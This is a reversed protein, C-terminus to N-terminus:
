NSSNSGLEVAKVGPGSPYEGALHETGPYSFPCSSHPPSGHPQSLQGKQPLLWPEELMLTPGGSCTGPIPTSKRQRLERSETSPIRPCVHAPRGHWFASPIPIGSTLTTRCVLPKCVPKQPKEPNQPKPVAVSIHLQQTM